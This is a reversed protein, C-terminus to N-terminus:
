IRAWSLSSSSSLLALKDTNIIVMINCTVLPVALQALCSARLTIVEFIIDNNAMRFASYLECKGVISRMALVETM